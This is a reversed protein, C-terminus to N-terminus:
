RIEASLGQARFSQLQQTITRLLYAGSTGRPKATSRIAAQNDTYILVKTRCNGRDRDEQAVQLALIICQLESGYVTAVADDGVYASKAQHTTTCM